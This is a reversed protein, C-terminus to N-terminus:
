NVKFSLNLPSTRVLFYKHISNNTAYPPDGKSIVFLVTALEFPKNVFVFNGSQIVSILPLVFIRRILEVKKKKILLVVSQLKRDGEKQQKM